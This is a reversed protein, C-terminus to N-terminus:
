IFYLFIIHMYLPSANVYTCSKDIMIIISQLYNLIIPNSLFHKTSHYQFREHQVIIINVNKLMKGEAEFIYKSIEDVM